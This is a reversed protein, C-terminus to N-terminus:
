MKQQFDGRLMRRSTMFGLRHAGVEKRTGDPWTVSKRGYGHRDVSGSWLICGDRDCVSNKQLSTEIKKWFKERSM